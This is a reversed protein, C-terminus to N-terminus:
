SLDGVLSDPMSHLRLCGRWFVVADKGNGFAPTRMSPLDHGAIAMSDKERLHQIGENKYV